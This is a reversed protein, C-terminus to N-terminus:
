DLAAPKRNYKLLISFLEVTIELATPQVGEEVQSCPTTQLVRVEKDMGRLSVGLVQQALEVPKLHLLLADATETITPM